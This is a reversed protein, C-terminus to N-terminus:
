GRFNALIDKAAIAGRTPQNGMLVLRSLPSHYVWYWGM